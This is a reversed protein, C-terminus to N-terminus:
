PKVEKRGVRRNWKTIAREKSDEFLVAGCMQGRKCMMVGSCEDYKAKEGCFPCRKLKPKM